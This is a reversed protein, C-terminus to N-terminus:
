KWNSVVSSLFPVLSTCPSFKWPISIGRSPAMSLFVSPSNWSKLSCSFCLTRPWLLQSHNKPQTLLRVHLVPKFNLVQVLVKCCCSRGPQCKLQWHCQQQMKHLLSSPHRASTIKVSAFVKYIPIFTKCTHWPLREPVIQMCHLMDDAATLETNLLGYWTICSTRRIAILSLVMLTEPLKHAKSPPEQPSKRWTMDTSQVTQAQSIALIMCELTHQSPHIM